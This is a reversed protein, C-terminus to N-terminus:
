EKGACKDSGLAERARRGGDDHLAARAEDGGAGILRCSKAKDAYWDLTARQREIERLLGAMTDHLFTPKETRALEARAARVHICPECM